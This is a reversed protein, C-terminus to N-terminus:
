KPRKNEPATNQSGKNKLRVKVNPPLMRPPRGDRVAEACLEFLWHGYRREGDSLFTLDDSQRIYDAITGMVQRFMAEDKKGCRQEVIFRSARELIVVTWGESDCPEGRKGVVTYLEDGEFTLRIFEHCVAYLMLPVKQEVFRKEWDNGHEQPYRFVPRHCALGLRREALKYSKDKPEASKLQPTTLLNESQRPM